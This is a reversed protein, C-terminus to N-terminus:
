HSQQTIILLTKLLRIALIIMGVALSLFYILGTLYYCCYCMPLNIIYNTHWPHWIGETMDLEAVRHVTAWWAGREMPKELCSYQLSNGHGEEPVRRWGPLLGADRLDGAHAPPNKAM